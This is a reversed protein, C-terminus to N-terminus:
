RLCRQWHPRRRCCARPAPPCQPRHRHRRRSSLARCASRSTPRCRPHHHRRSLVCHAAADAAAAPALQAAATAARRGGAGPGSPPLAIHRLHFPLHFTFPCTTPSTLSSIRPAVRCCTVDVSTVQCDPTLSRVRRRTRSYARGSERGLSADGSGTLRAPTLESPRPAPPAPHASVAPVVCFM